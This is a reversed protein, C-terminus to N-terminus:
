LEFNYFKNYLVAAVYIGATETRLRSNGLSLGQFRRKQAYQIEHETFDGEPGILILIKKQKSDHLEAKEGEYCSAIYKENDIGSEDVLDRFRAPENMAPLFESMSQKMAELAIKQLRDHRVHKKETRECVLPTIKSVRLEVAKEVFWEFRTVNKLPSIAIHLDYQPQPSNIIVQSSIIVAGTPNVDSLIGKLLLGKGNSVIIEDGQRFRLVRICHHTEAEPLSFTGDLADPAYFVHM